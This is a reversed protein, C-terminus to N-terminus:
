ACCMFIAYEGTTNTLLLAVPVAIATSIICLTIGAIFVKFATSSLFSENTQLTSPVEIITSFDVDFQQSIEYSTQSPYLPRGQSMLTMTYQPVYSGFVAASSTPM